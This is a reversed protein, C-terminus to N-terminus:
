VGRMEWEMWSSSHHGNELCPCHVSTHRGLRESTDAEDFILAFCFTNISSSLLRCSFVNELSVANKFRSVHRFRAGTPRRNQRMKTEHVVGMESYTGVFKPPNFTRFRASKEALVNPAQSSLYRKQVLHAYFVHMPHDAAQDCKQTEHVNGGNKLVTQTNKFIVHDFLGVDEARM